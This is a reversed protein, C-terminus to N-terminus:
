ISKRTVRDLYSLDEVQVRVGDGQKVFQPVLIKLGNELEAEKYNSDSASSPAASVVKLEVIKPFDISLARDGAFMVDIEVNEKLFVQQRGVLAATLTFQEYSEMNMFYFLDGDRYLYQMKVNLVDVNEVKDEARIVKESIHGDELCKLKIHVTKGFKGTGKMEQTMVKCIKGEIRLVNGVRIETATLM